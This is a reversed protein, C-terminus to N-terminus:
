TRLSYSYSTISFLHSLSSYSKCPIIKELSSVPCGSLLTHTVKDKAKMEALCSAPMEMETPEHDHSKFPLDPGCHWLHSVSLEIPTIGRSPLDAPNIKGPCHKWCNIPVLRRIEMVRNQKWDKNVGIIWCLSVQSDTCCTPQGLVFNAQLSSTVSDILRALLVASLLELRPISMEQQPAVRTKSTVFKVSSQSENCAVLYVVAAYAEKSADCYGHLSSLPVRLNSKM